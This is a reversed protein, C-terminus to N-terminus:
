LSVIDDSEAIYDYVWKSPTYNPKIGKEVVAKSFDNGYYEISVMESETCVKEEAQEIMETVIDFLEDYELNDVKKWVEKLMAQEEDAYEDSPLANEWDEDDVSLEEVINSVIEYALEELKESYDQIVANDDPYLEKIKNCVKNVIEERDKEAIENETNDVYTEDIDYFDCLASKIDIAWNCHMIQMALEDSNAEISEGNELNILRINRGDKNIKQFELKDNKDFAEKIKTKVENPIDDIVSDDHNHIKDLINIVKKATEQDNEAKILRKKIINM